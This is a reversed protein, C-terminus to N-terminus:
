EINMYIHPFMSVKLSIHYQGPEAVTYAVNCSGDKRDKFNIQAKSPGEISIAIKGEGAERTWINFESPGGVAGFELGAGGAKVLHSGSDGFAGVTYQFPSGTKRARTHTHKLDNKEM